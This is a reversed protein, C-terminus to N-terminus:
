PPLEPLNLYHAEKVGEQSRIEKMVEDTPAQDLNIGVVALGSKKKRSFTLYAINIKNKGFVSGYRGLVAPLDENVIIVVHGEPKLERRYGDLSLIRPFRTGYITGWASRKGKDTTISVEMLNTFEKVKASTVQEVELGRQKALVPANIVNVHQ